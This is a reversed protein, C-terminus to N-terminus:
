VKKMIKKVIIIKVNKCYDKSNEVEMPDLCELCFIKWSNVRILSEVLDKVNIGNKLKREL